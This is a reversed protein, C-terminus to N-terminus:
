DCKHIRDQCATGQDLHPCTNTKGLTDPVPQHHLSCWMSTRHVVGVGQVLVLALVQGVAVAGVVLGVVGL